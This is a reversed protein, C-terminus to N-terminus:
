RVGDAGMGIESLSRKRKELAKGTPITKWSRRNKRTMGWRDLVKHITTLSCNLGLVVRLEALSIEPNRGIVELLKKMHRMFIVPKRGARWHLPEIDGLRKRQHLLKKVMGLSVGFLQAVSARTEKGGDYCALIRNRIELSLTKM